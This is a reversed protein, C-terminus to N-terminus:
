QATGVDAPAAELYHCTVSNSTFGASEAYFILGGGPGTDGVMYGVVVDAMYINKKAEGTTATGDEPSIYTYTNIIEVYYRFTGDADNKVPCSFSKPGPGAFNSAATLNTRTGDADEYYWAYSFSDTWGPIASFATSTNMAISLSPPSAGVNTTKDQNEWASIDPTVFDDANMTFSVSNDQGARIEVQPKKDLATMAMTAGVGYYATAAIDWAGPELEVTIMKDTTPGISFYGDSRYFDLSYSM